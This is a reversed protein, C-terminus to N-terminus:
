VGPKPAPETSPAKKPAEEETDMEMKGRSEEFGSGFGLVEGEVPARMWDAGGFRNKPAESKPRAVYVKSNNLKPEGDDEFVIITKESDKIDKLIKESLESNFYIATTRDGAKCQWVEDAKPIIDFPIDKGDEEAARFFPKIDTQWTAAKPLKGNNETAYARLAKRAASITVMCKMAPELQQTFLGRFMAGAAVLFGCPIVVLFGIIGLIM